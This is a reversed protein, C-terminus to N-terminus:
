KTGFEESTLLSWVFDELFEERQRTSGQEAVQGSWFASEKKTPKRNLAVRYFEGIIDIPTQDTNILKALRSGKSNIRENLLKGNLWHLKEALGGRDTGITECSEKRDCRGLVDLTPSPTSPDVLSVARTGAATEGFRDAVGLVDSIADALVEPELDRRLAHSYFRDDDSNESLSDASRAYADSQAIMRLTHRLDYGNNVFDEALQTLLEPHTAPNTARFDDVPEVLGRGMMNQWLRNVIAKAFYPNDRSTLWQALASRGDDVDAALSDEGPIRQQAPELTRPHIVEGSPKPKIVPGQEVRAFIAALGHYDDQTWRDLPHNHCNACRLRSGMMLESFFETQERAGGVTRYFNAPGVKRTDGSATILAQALENYPTNRRLQEKLWRHYTFLATNDGNGDRRQDQSRVRFLRALKLTWYEVFEDSQLLADILADRDSSQEIADRASPTRISGPLRGTLDLSLRRVYAADRLQASAPIRLTQLVDSIQKDVFNNSGVSVVRDASAPADNLPVIVEVPVVQDLYRAVLVHRGRRKATATSLEADVSIASDDEASIITWRTVDRHSGDSYHAISQFSTSDGVRPLVTKQPTIDVRRLERTSADGAGERIWRALMMAADSDEGIVLGGQHEIQETPKLAILSQEPRVLNVRRGQSQRVIADYDAAPNSGYLSLKFGGRGVAAGHCAGANCGSKTLVPILDNKFDIATENAISVHTGFLM